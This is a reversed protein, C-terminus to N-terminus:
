VIFISSKSRKVINDVQKNLWKSEYTHKNDTPIINRYKNKDTICIHDRKREEQNKNQKENKGRYM